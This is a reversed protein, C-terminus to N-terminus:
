VMSALESIAHEIARAVEHGEQWIQDHDGTIKLLSSRKGTGDKTFGQHELSRLMLEAQEWEVLRDDRSHAIVVLRGDEWSQDFDSAAAPSADRWLDRDNGFADTVFGRYAAEGKADHYAVLRPLDYLGALGVMAVPPVVNLELALTSEYQSGWYRKMAVQLALTAGCSHGVLVYRDEFAFTEQLHLLAALVDTIHEPHRANRAPDSPNSPDREHSPYPSLRYNISAFGAIYEECLGSHLLRAQAAKFSNAANISPDKWAGGHIFIVWLRKRDNASTPRPLCIELTNLRSHTSYQIDHQYKPWEDKIGM